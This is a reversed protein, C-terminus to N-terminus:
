FLRSIPRPCEREDDSADRGLTFLKDEVPDAAELEPTEPEGGDGPACNPEGVVLKPIFKPRKRFFELPTISIHAGLARHTYNCLKRM